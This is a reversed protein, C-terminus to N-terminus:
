RNVILSSVYESKSIKLNINMNLIKVCFLSDAFFRPEKVTVGKGGNVVVTTQERM